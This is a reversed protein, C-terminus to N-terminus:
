GSEPDGLPVLALDFRQRRRWHRWHDAYYNLVFSTKGMGSDALLIAYKYDNPSALIRDVAHFLNEQVPALLWSEEGGAPDLHQCNPRIYCTTARVIDERTYIEAGQRKRFSRWDRWTRWWPYVKTITEYLGGIIGFLGGILQVLKLPDSLLNQM